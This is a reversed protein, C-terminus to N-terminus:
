SRCGLINLGNHLNTLPTTTLNSTTTTTSTNPKATTATIRLLIPLREEAVFFAPAAVKGHYICGLPDRNNVVMDNVALGDLLYDVVLLNVITRNPVNEDLVIQKPPSINPLKPLTALVFLFSIYLLVLLLLLLALHALRKFRQLRPSHCELVGALGYADWLGGSSSIM